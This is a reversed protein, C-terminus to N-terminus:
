DNTNPGTPLERGTAGDMLIHESRIPVGELRNMMWDAILAKEDLNDSIGHAEGKYIVLTKPAEIEGFFEHTYAIPSLQDDEGAVILIPCKIRQGLGKLTLLKAFEDFETEDEYGAMWMFREKFGPFSRTFLTAMGPEHCVHFAAAAKYRHDHAVIQPVWFSGMSVGAIGIRNSDIEPRDLLFDMAARGATVFNDATCCIKRTIRAENQGPGDLSMVAIGRELFKDGYASTLMEKVVDMGGFHVVCPFARSERTPLHLLGPLYRDDFAIEVREIPHPAHEIYRDYCENKKESYVANEMNDDDHITGQAGTYLVAAAFYNDRATIVHGQAEAKTAMAERKAALKAIERSIEVYKKIRSRLRRIDASLDMGVTRLLTESMPFSIDMGNAQIIKDFTWEQETM